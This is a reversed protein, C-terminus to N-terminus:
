GVVGETNFVVNSINQVFREISFYDRDVSENNITLGNEIEFLVAVLDDVNPLSNSRFLM